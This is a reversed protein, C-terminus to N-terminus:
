SACCTKAASTPAGLEALSWSLDVHMTDSVGPTSPWENSTVSAQQPEVTLRL